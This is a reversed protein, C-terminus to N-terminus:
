VIAAARRANSDSQAFPKQLRVFRYAAGLDAVTEAM